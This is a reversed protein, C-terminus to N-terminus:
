RRRWCPTARRRAAPLDRAIPSFIGLYSQATAADTGPAGRVIAVEHVIVDSGRLLAGIGFSASRSCARDAGPGHGVGVRAPRAPQLVLYNVPGSSCSTASCSCSCARRDAAARPEAPQRGRRRDDPRGVLSVTGGSRPPLLRRWLPADITTARPSGPRRRPRLRAPDGVRRRAHARRRDRPRGVDRARARRGPRGRLRDAHTAGEPPPASSRACRRRTSTSSRPRGTPSCTTRSRRRALRRGRHRRRHGAARRGAIWTRLAALQAPTLASADVDQWILRDLPPGPRSASRAPRGPHAHAIM